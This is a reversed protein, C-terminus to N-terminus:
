RLEDIGGLRKPDPQHLNHCIIQRAGHRIEGLLHQRLRWGALTGALGDDLAYDFACM